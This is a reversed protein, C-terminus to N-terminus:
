IKIEHQNILINFSKFKTIKKLKKKTKFIYLRITM